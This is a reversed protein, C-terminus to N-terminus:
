FGTTRDGFYFVVLSFAGSVMVMGGGFYYCGCRDLVLYHPPFLLGYSFYVRLEDLPSLSREAVM